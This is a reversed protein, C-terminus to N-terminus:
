RTPRPARGLEPERQRRRGLRRSEDARGSGAHSGRDRRHAASTLTEDNGADDTFSVRVKITAGEDADALEYTASTAGSIDTENDSDDVRIWQYGYSVMTLGDTDQIDATSATLTEGVKETGSITPAGTAANNQAHAPTSIPALVAWALLM